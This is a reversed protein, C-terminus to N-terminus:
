PPRRRRQERPDSYRVHLAGKMNPNGSVFEVWVSQATRRPWLYNLYHIHPGHVWHNNYEDMDRQDFYFFHWDSQDPMAFMHGNVLRREEFIAGVKRMFKQALPSAAQGPKSSGLAAVEEDSPHLHPPTFDRHHRFHNWPLAGAMGALILEALDASRIVMTRCHKEVASKKTLLLLELLPEASGSTPDDVPM